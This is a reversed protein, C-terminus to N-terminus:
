AGVQELQRVVMPRYGLNSKCAFTPLRARCRESGVVFAAALLFHLIMKSGLSDGEVFGNVIFAAVGLTSALHLLTASVSMQPPHLVARKLLQLALGAFALLAFIGLEGCLLLYFNHVPYVFNDTINDSTLDYKSMRFRYSNLGVGTLLNDEILRFAIENMLVRSEAQGDDPITLRQYLNGLMPLALLLLCAALCVLRPAGRGLAHRTKDRFAWLAVGLVATLIFTIVGGRSYTIVLGISGAGAALLPLIRHSFRHDSVGFLVAVPLWVALSRALENPTPDLGTVRKLELRTGVGETWPESAGLFSLELSQPALYQAIAVGSTVIVGFCVSQVIFQIDQGNRVHRSFYLFALLGNLLFALGHLTPQL